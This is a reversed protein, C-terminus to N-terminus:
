TFMWGDRTNITTRVKMLLQGLWNQGQGTDERVGWFQDGYANVNSIETDGTALLLGKYTEKEFKLTLLKEMIKLRNDLWGQRPTLNKGIAIADVPNECDAIQQHIAVDLTKMAQFAHEVSPYTIGNIKIYCASMTNLFYNEEKQTEIKKM